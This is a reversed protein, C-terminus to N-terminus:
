SKSHLGTDVSRSPRALSRFPLHLPSSTSKIAMCTRTNASSSDSTGVPAEPFLLTLMSLRVRTGLLLRRQLSCDSQDASYPPLHSAFPMLLWVKYSKSGDQAKLTVDVYFTEATCGFGGCNSEKNKYVTQYQFQSLRTQSIRALFWVLDAYM